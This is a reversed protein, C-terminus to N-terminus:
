QAKVGYSDPIEITGPPVIAWTELNIAMDNLAAQYGAKFSPDLRPYTGATTSRQKVTELRKSVKGIMTLTANLMELATTVRYLM